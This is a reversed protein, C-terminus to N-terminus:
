PRPVAMDEVSSADFAGARRLCIGVVVVTARRADM